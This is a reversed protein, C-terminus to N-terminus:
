RELKVCSRCEKGVRREESRDSVSYAVMRDFSRAHAKWDVFDPGLVMALPFPSQDDRTAVWVLRDPDPAALPRLLVANVLSLVVATLGLGLALTVVAATTMLPTRRLMRAGYRADQAAQLLWTMM